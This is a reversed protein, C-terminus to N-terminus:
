TELEVEHANWSLRLNTMQRLSTSSYSLQLWFYLTGIGGESAEVVDLMEQWSESKVDKLFHRWCKNKSINYICCVPDDDKIKIMEYVSEHFKNGSSSIISVSEPHLTRLLGYLIDEVCASSKIIEFTLDHLPPCKISSLDEHIIIHKSSHMIMKFGEVPFFLSIFPRMMFWLQNGLGVDRSETATSLSIKADLHVKRLYLKQLRPLMINGCRRLICGSLRLGTLTESSLVVEPLTYRNIDKFGIQLDIEQIDQSVASTLWSDVLPADTLDFSMMHLLLKQIQLNNALYTHLSDAVHQRFLNEKNSGDEPGIGAAFKQEYFILAAYSFWLTRWRKSLCKTRIADRTNRLFSLIHYIVHDPLQSIRDVSEVIQIMQEVNEVVSNASDEMELKRKEGASAQLAEDSSVM